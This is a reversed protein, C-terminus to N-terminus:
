TRVEFDTEYHERQIQGAEHALRTALELTEVVEKSQDAVATSGTRM